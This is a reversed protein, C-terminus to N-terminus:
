IETLTEFTVSAHTGAGPKYVLDTHLSRTLASIVKSGVGTGSIAGAGDWGKGDDQVSLEFKNQGTSTIIVRIEGVGDDYAYKYANTILESAIIGLSVADDAKVYIPSPSEMRLQTGQHATMSTSLETVLARLYSSFEVRRVDSLANSYLHKHVGAIALVRAQTETLAAKCAPDDIANAQLRTLSSILTLSNAIRHNVEALLIELRDKAERLAHEAQAKELKLRQQDLAASVAQALLERYHGATDKWVYDVAGAKLAAVAVRADDSGTVYIVPPPTDHSKLAELLDLGTEGALNHDLAIVDFRERAIADLAQACTEVHVLDLDHTALGKSLLRALGTDDEVYLLRARDSM